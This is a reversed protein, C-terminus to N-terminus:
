ETLENENLDLITQIKKITKKPITITNSIQPPNTGYNAAVSLYEKDEYVLFGVSVVKVTTDHKADELERWRNNTCSDEWTVKVLKM